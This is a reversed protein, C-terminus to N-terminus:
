NDRGMIYSLHGMGMSNNQGLGLNYVIKQMDIDAEVYIEFNSHGILFGDKNVERIFKKKVKFIDEIDFFLKGKYKKGYVIEYKRMLNGALASYYREDVIELYRVGGTNVDYISEVIPNRVKYLMINKYRITKSPEIGLFKLSVDDIKVKSSILSKVIINLISKEGSITIKVISDKEILMYEKKYKVEEFYIHYNFLKFTKNDIRYGIDHIFKSKKSNNESILKYIQQMFRFYYNYSICGGNNTKFILVQRDLNM